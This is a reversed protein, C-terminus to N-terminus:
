NKAMIEDVTEGLLRNFMEPNEIMLFHGYGKMIKVDFSKAYKRNGEVDTPWLDTSVAYIPLQLARLNGEVKTNGYEFMSTFAQMAVEQPASSMDTAITEVLTSDAGLPLMTKVFAKASSAFDTYFPATLQDMLERTFTTDVLREYTDIGILAEVKGPLKTAADIIVLGGMSHGILIVKELKLDNIVAAVDDGFSEITFNDRNLGSKGHGGYDVTVVTYKKSFEPVQERWYTKDCSWGHVFVLAPAGAGQVTYSIEVGDASKVIRDVPKSCGALVFALATFYLIYTKVKM